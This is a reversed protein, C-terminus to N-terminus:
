VFLFRCIFIQCANSNHIAFLSVEPFSFVSPRKKFEAIDVHKLEHGGEQGAQVELCSPFEMDLDEAKGVLLVNPHSTKFKIRQSNLMDGHVDLRLPSFHM